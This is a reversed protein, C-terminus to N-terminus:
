IMVVNKEFFIFKFFFYVYGVEIMEWSLLSIAVSIM